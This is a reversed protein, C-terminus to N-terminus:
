SATFLNLNHVLLAENTHWILDSFWVDDSKWKGIAFNPIPRLKLKWEQQEREQGKIASEESRLNFSYKWILVVIVSIRYWFLIVKLVM